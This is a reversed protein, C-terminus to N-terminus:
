RHVEAEKVQSGEDRIVCSTMPARGICENVEDGHTCYQRHDTIVCFSCVGMHVKLHSQICDLLQNRAIQAWEKIGPFLALLKKKKEEATKCLKLEDVLGDNSIKDM